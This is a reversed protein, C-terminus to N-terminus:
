YSHSAPNGPTRHVHNKFEEAMPSYYSGEPLSRGHDNKLINTGVEGSIIQIPLITLIIHLLYKLPIRM